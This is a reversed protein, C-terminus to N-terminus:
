EAELDNFAQRYSPPLGAGGWEKAWTIAGYGADFKERQWTMADALRAAEAEFDLDHFVSVDDSGVGWRTSEDTASLAPKAHQSLWARADRRFLELSPLKDGGSRDDNAPGTM